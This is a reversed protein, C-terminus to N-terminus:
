EGGEKKFHYQKKVERGKKPSHFFKAVDWPPVTNLFTELEWIYAGDSICLNDEDTFFTKFSYEAVIYNCSTGHRHFILWPFREAKDSQAICKGWVGNLWGKRRPACLFDLADARKDDKVEVMIIDTFWFGEEGVAIIDGLMKSKHDQTRTAQAGSSTEHWFILPKDKGTVWRSLRKAIKIEYTNGKSKGGGPKM